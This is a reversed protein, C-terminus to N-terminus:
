MYLLRSNFLVSTVLGGVEVSRLLHKMCNLLVIAASKRNNVNNLGLYVFVTKLGQQRVLRETLTRDQTYFSLLALISGAYNKITPPYYTLQILMRSLEEKTLQQCYNNNLEILEVVIRYASSLYVEEGQIIANLSQRFM